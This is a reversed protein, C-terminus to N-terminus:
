PHWAIRFFRQAGTAPPLPVTARTSGPEGFVVAEVSSWDRLDPSSQLTFAEDPATPFVLQNNEVSIRFRPVGDLPDHGLLFELRNPAGDGDPDATPAPDAITPFDRIWEAYPDPEALVVLSTTTGNAPVFAQTLASADRHRWIGHQFTAVHLEGHIETASMCIMGPLGSVWEEIQSSDLDIGMLSGAYGAVRLTDDDVMLGQPARLDSRLSRVLQGSGTFEHVPRSTASTTSRSSVFLRDGLWAIGRANNLDWGAGSRAIFREFGSGDAALRFVGQGSSTGFATSFYLKGDPGVAIQQSDANTWGAALASGVNRTALTVTSGDAPDIRDIRSFGSGYLLGQHLVLSQYSASSIRRLLSWSGEARVRYEDVGATGAIAVRVSARARPPTSRPRRPNSGALFEHRNNFGDGDEDGGPRAGHRGFATHTWPGPLANSRFSRFDELRHFTLCNADHYNSAGGHVDDFATRVVAILDDDDFCWDVYQFGHVTPDPHHLLRGEDRWERLTASSLLHLSQRTSAPQRGTPSDAGVANALTWYRGSTPDHRITFKKAGGPLDIFDSNPDFTLATGDARVRTVASKEPLVPHDVRLLNVLEGSPDVVLNGELWGGFSGGLWSTDSPLFTSITWQSADLPNADLAVSIVGARFNTGWGTGPMRREMARWLRGRHVVTPVPAGHYNGDTALLGSAASSPTTWTWGGDVSRRIVPNGYQHSTGLLFLGGQHVFLTSWFAGQVVASQSWSDGRDTSRFVRTVGSTNQTSGSGFEDHCAILTGDPLRAISPSGVFRNSSAQLHSVLTGPVSPAVTAAAAPLALGLPMAWRALSRVRRHTM